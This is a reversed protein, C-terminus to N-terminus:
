PSPLIKFVSINKKFHGQRNSHRQSIAAKPSLTLGPWYPPDFMSAIHGDLDGSLIQILKLEQRPPSTDNVLEM